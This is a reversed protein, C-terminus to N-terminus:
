HLPDYWSVALYEVDEQGEWWDTFWDLNYALDARCAEVDYTWKKEFHYKYRFWVLQTPNECEHKKLEEILDDETHKELPVFCLTPMKQLKNVDMFVEIAADLADSSKAEMSRLNSEWRVGDAADESSLGSNVLAFYRERIFEFPEETEISIRVLEPLIKEYDTNVDSM